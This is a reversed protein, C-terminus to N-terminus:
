PTLDENAFPRRAVLWDNRRRACRRCSWGGWVLEHLAPTLSLPPTAEGCSPCDIKALRVGSDESTRNEPDDDREHTM